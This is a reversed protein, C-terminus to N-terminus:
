LALRDGALVLTLSLIPEELLQRPLEPYSLFCILPCEGFFTQHPPFPTRYVREYIPLVGMQNPLVVLAVTPVCIWFVHRKRFEQRGHATTAASFRLHYLQSANQLSRISKHRCVKSFFLPYTLAQTGSFPKRCLRFLLSFALVM